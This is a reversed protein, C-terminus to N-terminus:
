RLHRRAAGILGAAVVVGATGYVVLAMLMQTLQSATGM